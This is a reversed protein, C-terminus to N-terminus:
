ENLIENIKSDRLQSKSLGYALYGFRTDLDIYDTGVVKKLGGISILEVGEKMFKFLHEPCLLLDNDYYGFGMSELQETSYKSFDINKLYYEEFEDGSHKSSSNYSQNQLNKIKKFFNDEM